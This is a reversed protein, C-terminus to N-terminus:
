RKFILVFDRASVLGGAGEATVQYSVKVDESLESVIECKTLTTNWKTSNSVDKLTAILKEPAVDIVANVRYINKGLKNKKTVVIDGFENRKVEKWNEESIIIAYAEEFAANVTDHFAQHDSM